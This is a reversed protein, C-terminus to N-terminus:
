HPGAPCGSWCSGGRDNRCRAFLSSTISLRVSADNVTPIAKKEPQPLTPNQGSGADIPLDSRTGACAALLIFTPLIIAPAYTRRSM